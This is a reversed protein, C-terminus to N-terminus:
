AGARSSVMAPYAVPPCRPPRRKACPDGGFVPELYPSGYVGYWVNGLMFVPEEVRIETFREVLPRLYRYRNYRPLCCIPVPDSLALGACRFAKEIMETCYLPYNDLRMASDFPVQRMWADECYALAEPIAHRFPPRVRKITLTGPVVGLMWFEFPLKRVSGEPPPQTDYVYVNGGEHFAIADHTFRSDSVGTLLRNALRGRLNGSTGYRFLLDGDQINERAFAAWEAMQPTYFLPKLEGRARAEWAEPSWPNTQRWARPVTAMAGTTTCGSSVVVLLVVASAIGRRYRPEGM